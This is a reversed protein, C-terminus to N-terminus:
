VLGFYNLAEPIIEEIFKKLESHDMGRQLRLLRFCTQASPYERVLVITLKPNLEVFGGKPLRSCGTVFELFNSRTEKNASSLIDFLDQIEIDDVTCYELKVHNTLNEFSWYSSDDEEGLIINQLEKPHFMHLNSSKIVYDFGWKLASMQKQVGVFFKKMIADVYVHANMIDVSTNAGDPILEIGEHGPFVFNLDYCELSDGNITLDKVLYLKESHTLENNDLIQDREIILKKMDGLVKHVAPNVYKLDDFNLCQKHLLYKFIPTALPLGLLSTEMLAKALLAGITIFLDAGNNSSSEDYFDLHSGFDLKPYLGENFQLFGNQTEETSTWINYKDKQLEKGISNFLEKKLGVGAGIENKFFVNWIRNPSTHLMYKKVDNVINIREVNLMFINEFIDVRSSYREYHLLISCLARLRNQYLIRFAFMRTGLPFVFPCHDFIYKIWPPYKGMLAAFPNSLHKFVCKNLRTNVFDQPDILVEKHQIQEYASTWHENIGYLINSLHLANKVEETLEECESSRPKLYNELVYTHKMFEENNGENPPFHAEYQQYLFIYQHDFVNSEHGVVGYKTIVEYITMQSSLIIGNLSLRSKTAFRKNPVASLGAFSSADQQSFMFHQLYQITTFPQVNLSMEEQSPTIRIIIQFVQTAIRGFTNISLRLIKDINKKRIKDEHDVLFYGLKKVLEKFLQSNWNFEQGQPQVPIGFFVDLFVRMRCIRHDSETPGTLYWIFYEIAESRRNLIDPKEEDFFSAKYYELEQKTETIGGYSSISINSGVYNPYSANELNFCSSYEEVQDKIWLVFELELSSYEQAVDISKEKEESFNRLLIGIGHVDIRESLSSHYCGLLTLTQVAFMQCYMPNQKLLKMSIQVLQDARWVYEEPKACCLLKDHQEYNMLELVSLLAEMCYYKEQKYLTLSFRRTLFKYSFDIFDRNKFHFGELKRSKKLFLPRHIEIEERSVPTRESTAEDIIVMHTFDVTQIKGYDYCTFEKKNETYSQEILYNLRPIFPVWIGSEIEKHWVAMKIVNETKFTLERVADNIDFINSCPLPLLSWIFTVLHMKVAEIKFKYQQDLDILTQHINNELLNSAAELYNACIISLIEMVCHKVSKIANTNRLVKHLINTTELSTIGEIIDSQHM